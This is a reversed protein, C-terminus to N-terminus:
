SHVDVRSGTRNTAIPVTANHLPCGFVPSAATDPQAGRLLTLLRQRGFSDGEHGRAATLGGHFVLRGDPGYAIVDGSTEAGFAKAISGQPDTIPVVGPISAARHWLSTTEVNRVGTETRGPSFDVFLAYVTPRASTGSLLRGLETVSAQSCTCLPHLTMVLTTGSLRLGTSDPWADPAQSSAGPTTKYHWVWGVAASISAAWLVVLVVVFRPARHSDSQSM